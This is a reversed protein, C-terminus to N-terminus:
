ATAEAERVELPADCADFLEKGVFGFLKGPKAGTEMAEFMYSRRGTKMGKDVKLTVETEISQRSRMSYFKHIM